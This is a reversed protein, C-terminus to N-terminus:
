NCGSAGGCKIEAVMNCTDSWDSDCCSHQQWQGEGDGCVCDRVGAQCYKSTVIFTCAQTWTEKCCSELKGCVCAEIEANDCGPTDHASCCSGIHAVMKPMDMSGMSGMSGMEANKM